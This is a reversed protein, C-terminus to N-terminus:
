LGSDSRGNDTSAEEVLDSQSKDSSRSSELDKLRKEYEKLTGEYHTIRKENETIEQQIEENFTSFSLDELIPQGFYQYM